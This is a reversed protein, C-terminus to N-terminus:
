EIPEGEQYNALEASPIITVGNWNYGLAIFIEPSTIHRKFGDKTLQYVMPLGNSRVLEAEYIQVKTGVDAWDYVEPALDNPLRICGNSYESYYPKGSRTLPLDHIFYGKYFRLSLPMILGSLSSIHSKEKSLIRFDGEPTTTKTPHGAASIRAQKILNGNEYLAISYNYLNVRILKDKGIGEVASLISSFYGGLSIEEPYFYAFYSGFFSFTLVIAPFIIWKRRM